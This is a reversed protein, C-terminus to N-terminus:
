SIETEGVILFIKIKDSKKLILKTLTRIMAPSVSIHVLILVLLLLVLKLIYIYM